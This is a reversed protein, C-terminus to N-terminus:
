LNRLDMKMSLVDPENYYYQGKRQDSWSDFAKILEAKTARHWEAGHFPSPCSCGADAAWFYTGKRIGEIPEITRVVVFMDFEYSGAVDVTAVIECGFKEPNYYPNREWGDTPGNIDLPM